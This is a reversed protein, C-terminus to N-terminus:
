NNKPQVVYIKSRKINFIVLPLNYIIHVIACLVLDSTFFYIFGTILSYIIQFIFDKKSFKEFKTTVYHHLFFLYSSFFISFIGLNKGMIGILLSKFFIEECIAGIILSFINGFVKYTPLKGIIEIYAKNLFIKYEKIKFSVFIIGILLGWLVNINFSYILKWKFFLPLIILPFVYIIRRVFTFIFEYKKLYIFNINKIIFINLIWCFLLAAIELNKFRIIGYLFPIYSFIILNEM